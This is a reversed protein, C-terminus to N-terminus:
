SESDGDTERDTETAARPARDSHRGRTDANPTLTADAGFVLRGHRHWVAALLYTAAVGGLELGTSVPSGPPPTVGVLFAGAPVTVAVCLGAVTLRFVVAGLATVSRGVYWYGAAVPTTAAVTAAWSPVVPFLLGRLEVVPVVLLITWGVFSLVFGQPTRPHPPM